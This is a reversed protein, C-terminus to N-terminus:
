LVCVEELIPTYWLTPAIYKNLVQLVINYICQDSAGKSKWTILPHSQARLKSDVGGFSNIIYELNNSAALLKRMQSRTIVECWTHVGYDVETFPSSKKRMRVTQSAEEVRTLQIKLSKNEEVLQDIRHELRRIQATKAEKDAKQRKRYNASARLQADTKM